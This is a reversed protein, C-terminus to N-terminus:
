HIQFKHHFKSVEASFKTLDYVEDRIIIFLDTAQNHASVEAITFEKTTM